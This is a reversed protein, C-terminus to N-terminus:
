YGAPGPSEFLEGLDEGEIGWADIGHNRLYRVYFVQGCGLDLCQLPKNFDIIAKILGEDFAIEEPLYEAYMDPTWAHCLQGGLNLIVSYQYVMSHESGNWIPYSDM